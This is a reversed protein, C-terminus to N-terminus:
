AKVGHRPHLASTEGLGFRVNMAQVAQGAAGKVLNDIASVVILHSHQEDLAWGIDCFNTHRVDAVAPFSKPPLLRVFPEKGYAEAFVRGVAEAGTGPVLDIHITSLIGRDFAVLHPTFLTPLGAYADIEPQHRHSLVGYPQLSVEALLYKVNAGRGAGTVGSASDIIPRTGARILGARQLPALPLIASTPYCGPVAVLFARAIAERFLEPLGYVADKLLAAHGHEFGYHKPYLGPNKLRFAASLDFVVAGLKLLEPALDVSAEHPTALFVADPKLAAVAGMEVPLVPLECVGRFRPFLEDFKGAQDGKERRASAFLGVIEAGPHRSLIAVLEAGSYGGAGVIVVRKRAASSM